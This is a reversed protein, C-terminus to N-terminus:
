HIGEILMKWDIDILWPDLFIGAGYLEGRTLLKKIFRLCETTIGQDRLQALYSERVVQPCGEANIDHCAFGIFLSSIVLGLAQWDELAKTTFPTNTLPLCADSHLFSLQEASAVAVGCFDHIVPYYSKTTENFQLVISNRLRHLGGHAVGEMHLSYVVLVLMAAIRKIRLERYQRGHSSTLEQPYLTSTREIFEIMDMEHRRGPISEPTDIVKMGTVLLYESCGARKYIGLNPRIIRRLAWVRWAERVERGDPPRKKKEKDSNMTFKKSVLASPGFLHHIQKLLTSFHNKNAEKKPKRYQSTWQEYQLSELAQVKGAKTDFRKLEINSSPSPHLSDDDKSTPGRPFTVKNSRKVKGGECGEPDESSHSESSSGMSSSDTDCTDISTGQDLSECSSITPCGGNDRKEFFPQWVNLGYHPSTGKLFSDYVRIRETYFDRIRKHIQWLVSAELSKHSSLHKFQLLQYNMFLSHPISYARWFIGKMLDEDRTFIETQDKELVEANGYLTLKRGSLLQDPHLDLEAVPTLRVPIVAEGWMELAIQGEAWSPPVNDGAETMLVPTKPLPPLNSQISTCYDCRIEKCEHNPDPVFSSEESSPRTYYQSESNRLTPRSNLHSRLSSWMSDIGNKLKSPKKRKYEEDSSRERVDISATSTGDDYVERSEANIEYMTDCMNKSYIDFIVKSGKNDDPDTKLSDSPQQPMPMTDYSRVPLHEGDEIEATRCYTSESNRNYSSQPKLESDVIYYTSTPV